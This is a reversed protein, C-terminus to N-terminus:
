PYWIKECSRPLCCSAGFNPSFSERRFRYSSVIRRTRICVSRFGFMLPSFALVSINVKENINSCIQHFLRVLFAVEFSRIPQTDPNGRYEIDYRRQPSVPSGIFTSTSLSDQAGRVPTRFMSTREDRVQSFSEDQPESPIEM